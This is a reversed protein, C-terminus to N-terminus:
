QVNNDEDYYELGRKIRTHAMLARTALHLLHDLESEDDNAIGAAHKALHRFMSACNDRHTLHYDKERLFTHAGYKEAGMKLVLDVDDFEKPRLDDTM